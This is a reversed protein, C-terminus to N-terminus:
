GQEICRIAKKVPRSTEEPVGTGPSRSGATSYRRAADNVALVVRVGRDSARPKGATAWVGIPRAARGEIRAAVLWLDQGSLPHGEIVDKEDRADVAYGSSLSTAGHRLGYYNYTVFHKPPVPLCGAPADESTSAPLNKVFVKGIGEAQEFASDMVNRIFVGAMLLLLATGLTTVVIATLGCGRCGSSLDFGSRGARDRRDPEGRPPDALIPPLPDM